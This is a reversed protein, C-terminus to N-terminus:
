FPSQLTLVTGFYFQISSAGGVSGRRGIWDKKQFGMVSMSLVSFDYYRVVKLLIIICVSHVHYVVGFYCYQNIAIKPRNELPFFNLTLGPDM